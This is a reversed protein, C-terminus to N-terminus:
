GGAARVGDVRRGPLHEPLTVTATTGRGLKSDYRLSGGHQVLASRALVVGLGTRDERTTFFPTGVRTLVDPPMGPGSDRVIIEAGAVDGRARVEVDVEGGPPTAEIANAVLNLVADRLLRPDAQVAAHGHSTLRVRRQDAHASLVLVTDAVFPGLEIPEPRVEQLPRSFSLYETLIQQMRAIEKEAVQLREQSAAERGDRVVLQVLAKIASLPNKLEHALKTGVQELSRARALTESAMAERTRALDEHVKRVAAHFPALLAGVGFVSLVVLAAHLSSTLEPGAWARPLAALGCAALGTAVLLARTAPHDGAVLLASIYPTFLTVLLPSEIAGTVAVALLSSALVGAQSFVAGWAMRESDANACTKPDKGRFGRQQAQLALAPVGISAVRWLPYGAAFLVAATLVYYTLALIDADRPWRAMAAGDAQRDVTPQSRPQSLTVRRDRALEPGARTGVAM